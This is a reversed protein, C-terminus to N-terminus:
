GKLPLIAHRLCSLITNYVKGGEEEGKRKKRLERLITSIPYSFFFIIIFIIISTFRRIFSDCDRIPTALHPPPSIKFSVSGIFKIWTDLQSKNPM